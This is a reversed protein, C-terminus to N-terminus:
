GHHALYGAAPTDDMGRLSQVFIAILGVLLVGGAMIMFAPQLGIAQVLPGAILYGIPGMLYEASIILGVVRGRLRSPTREQMAINVLPGIPGYAFGTLVCFVFLIPFPPLVAMGVVALGTIVLATVFASRRGFQHGIASYILAGAIGGGALAMVTIGLRQPQGAAQFYVPFFVGEIPLWFGAIVMGILAVARLVSDNWVFRIGEMTSTVVGRPRDHAAPRGSGPVRVIAMTLAGVAFLAASIWFTAAAGLFGIALGGIGPGILYAAGWTAEHIGNVRELRLKGAAAAEPVMSERASIGAPDFVAGLVALMALPWFSLGAFYSVTPVLAVSVMSFIDSGVAMRRRGIIDVAVGAFLFSLLLPVATIGALLGAAAASGTLELVLWPFVIMSIGNGIGSVATATELALFPTLTRAPSASLGEALATM